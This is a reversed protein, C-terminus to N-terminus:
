YIEKKLLCQWNILFKYLQVHMIKMLAYGTDFADKGVGAYATISTQM